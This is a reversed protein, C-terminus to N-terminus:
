AGFRRTQREADKVLGCEIHSDDGDADYNIMHPRSTRGDTFDAYPKDMWVRVEAPRPDTCLAFSRFMTETREMHEFGPTMEPRVASKLRRAKHRPFDIETRDLSGSLFKEMNVAHDVASWDGATSKPIRGEYTQSIDRISEYNQGRKGM